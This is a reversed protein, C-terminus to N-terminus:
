SLGVVAKLYVVILEYLGCGKLVTVWVLSLGVVAKICVMCHEFESCTM